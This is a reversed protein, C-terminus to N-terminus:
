KNKLVGYIGALKKLNKIEQATLRRYKGEHVGSLTLSAFGIRKLELVEHGVAQLMRKVQRKRGEHLIISLVSKKGRSKLNVQAPATMGDELAVGHTLKHVAADSVQGAVVVRYIKDVQSSPHLLAHTLEGDNTLLLLGRTDLDLRGVPYVRPSPPVLDVVKPRGQPDSATTVYGAPKNLLYYVKTKRQEVRRGDVELADDSAVKVGMATVVKGNVKVRGARILEECKRRSAIGAAALVKQLREM